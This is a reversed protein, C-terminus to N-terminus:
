KRTIGHRVTGGTQMKTYHHRRGRNKTTPKRPASRWFAKWKQRINEAWESRACLTATRNWAVHAAKLVRGKDTPSIRSTMLWRRRLRKPIYYNPAPPKTPDTSAIIWELLIALPLVQRLGVRAIGYVISKSTRFLLAIVNSIIRQLLMHSSFLVLFMLGRDKRVVCM